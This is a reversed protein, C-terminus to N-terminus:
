DECLSFVISVCVLSAVKTGLERGTPYAASYRVQPVNAGRMAGAECSPLPRPPYASKMPREGGMGILQM